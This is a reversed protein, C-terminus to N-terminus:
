RAERRDTPISALLRRSLVLVRDVFEELGYTKSVYGDANADDALRALHKDPLSSCLIVLVDPRCVTAKLRACLENGPIDPRVVDAVIVNPAWNAVLARVEGLSMAARVDFSALTLREQMLELTMESDDILLMRNKHAVVSDPRSPPMTPRGIPMLRTLLSILSRADPEHPIHLAPHGSSDLESLEREGRDGYLVIPCRQGVIARLVLHEDRM